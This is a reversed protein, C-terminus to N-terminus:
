ARAVSACQSEIYEAVRGAAQGHNAFVLHKRSQQGELVARQRDPDRLEELKLCLDAASAVRWALGREWNDALEPWGDAYFQLVPKEYLMGELLCTSCLGGIASSGALTTGLDCEDKFLRLQPFKQYLRGDENPHLRVVINLAARFQKAAAALWEACAAVAAPTNRFLDNGNSFFTFIPLDNSGTAQGLRRRAGPDHWSPPQDHRPSGLVLLREPQVGLLSMQEKSTEGWVAMEDAQVPANYASVAGHLLVLSKIGLQRAAFTASSGPMLQDVPLVLLRPRLKGLIRVIEVELSDAIAALLLLSNEARRGFLGPLAADLGAFAERWRGEDGRVPPAQFIITERPPLRLQKAVSDTTVIVARLGSDALARWVPLVAEVLVDRASELWFVLDYEGPPIQSEATRFFPRAWAKIRGAVSVGTQQEIELKYFQQWVPRLFPFRANLGETRRLFELWREDLSKGALPM